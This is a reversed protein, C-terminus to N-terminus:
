CAATLRLPFLPAPQGQFAQPVRGVQCSFHLFMGPSKGPLVATFFGGALAPSVLSEPQIEPDSLDGPTSVVRTNKGPINWSCLLRIPKRGHPQLTLCSHIVSCAHVRAHACECVCVTVCICACGVPFALNQFGSGTLGHQGGASRLKSLQGPPKQPLEGARWSLFGGPHSM